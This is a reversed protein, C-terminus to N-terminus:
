EFPCEYDFDVFEREFAGCKQCEYYNYTWYETYNHGEHVSCETVIAEVADYTCYHLTKKGCDECSMMKETVNAAFATLCLSAAIAVVLLISIAKKM